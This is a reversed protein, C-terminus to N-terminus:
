YGPKVFSAALKTALKTHILVPFVFTAALKTKTQSNQKRYADAM